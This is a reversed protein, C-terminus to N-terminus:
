NGDRREQRKKGQHGRVDERVLLEERAAVLPEQALRGLALV